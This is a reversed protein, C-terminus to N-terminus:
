PGLIDAVGESIPEPMFKSLSQPTIRVSCSYLVIARRNTHRSLVFRCRCAKRISHICACVDIECKCIFNHRDCIVGQFQCLNSSRAHYRLSRNRQDAENNQHSRQNRTTLISSWSRGNCCPSSVYAPRCAFSEVHAPHQEVFIPLVAASVTM